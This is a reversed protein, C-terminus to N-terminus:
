ILHSLYNLHFIFKYFGQLLEKTYNNTINQISKLKLADDDTFKYNKLVSKFNKDNVDTITKETLNM